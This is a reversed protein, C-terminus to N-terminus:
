PVSHDFLFAYKGSPGSEAHDGTHNGRHEQAKQGGNNKLVGEVYSWKPVDVSKGIAELLKDLGYEKELRRAYLMGAETIQLGVSQAAQEIRQDRLFSAHIEEDTLGFPMEERTHANNNDKIDILNKNKNESAFASCITSTSAFANNQMSKSENADNQKKWRKNAAERRKRKIYEEKAKQNAENQKFAEVDKRLTELAQCIIPDERGSNGDYEEGHRVYAYIAKIFRGAEADSFREVSAGWTTQMKFWDM